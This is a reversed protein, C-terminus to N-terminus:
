NGPVGQDNIKVLQLFNNNKPVIIGLGMKKGLHILNLGRIDGDLFLGSNRYTVPEFNGNGDGKLYLGISADNRVTEVDSSYMNGAIVLDLNGDRDIDEAVIGNVSSIQAQYPLPHISFKGNGTNELYSTAFNTVKYNLANKLNDSGYIDALSARAYDRYYPYKQKIFPNQAAARDRGHVLFLTDNYYYGLALDLTGNNDFDKSYLEFPYEKSAKYRYNLGLNGAVLDIDGDKDLDAATVCNWWGTEQELGSQATIEEFTKGTNKFIRISMWEGVMVLDPRLDSDIDTFLADTVMGINSLGPAIESTIDSFLVRAPNSDNRLIRSSVPLPYKGPKQRGGIFLDMDGDGDYDCPVVCSGSESISPIGTKSKKYNGLGDNLYLRDQLEQSGEDYKNGGSVV